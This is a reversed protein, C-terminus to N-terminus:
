REIIPSQPCHTANNGRLISFFTLSFFFFFANCVLVCALLFLYFKCSEIVFSSVVCQTNTNEETPSATDKEQLSPFFIQILLLTKETTLLSQLM